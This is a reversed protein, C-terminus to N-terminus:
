LLCIEQHLKKALALHTFSKIYAEDPQYFPEEFNKWSKYTNLIYSRLEGYTEQRCTEICNGIRGKQLIEYVNSNPVNGTCVAFIPKGAQMYEFLKGTLIGQERENNWTSLLLAACNQRFIAAEERSVYGRNDICSALDCSKAQETFLCGDKGIYQLVLDDKNLEHDKILEQLLKFVPTLDQDRAGTVKITGTYLLVFREPRRAPLAEEPDFGNPLICIKQNKPLQLEPVMAKSVTTVLDAGGTHHAAFNKRFYRTIPPTSDFCLLDRYDAIWKVTPKHQKLWEGTLHTWAPGYSSILIDCNTIEPHAKMYAIADGCQLYDKWDHMIEYLIQRHPSIAVPNVTEKAYDSYRAKLSYYRSLLKGDPFVHYESFVNLDRELLPDRRFSNIQKRDFTKEDTLVSIEYDGCRKLYKALKTWRISAIEQVPAIYKSLILVKKM